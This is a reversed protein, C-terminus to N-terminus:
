GMYVLLIGGSAWIQTRKASRDAVKSIFPQQFGPTSLLTYTCSRFTKDPAREM